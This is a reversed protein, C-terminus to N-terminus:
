RKRIGAHIGGQHRQHKAGHLVRDARRGLQPPNQARAAGQVDEFVDVGRRVTSQLPPLVPNIWQPGPQGGTAVQGSVGAQYEGISPEVRRLQAADGDLANWRQNRRM